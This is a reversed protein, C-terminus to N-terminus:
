LSGARIQRYDKWHRATGGDLPFPPPRHANRGAHLAPDPGAAPPGEFKEAGEREEVEEAAGHEVTRPRELLGARRRDGRPRLQGHGLLRKALDISGPLGRGRESG